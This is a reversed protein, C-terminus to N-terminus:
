EDWSSWANHDKSHLEGFEDDGLTGNNTTESEETKEGIYSNSGGTGPSTVLIHNQIEALVLDVSPRIYHKRNM